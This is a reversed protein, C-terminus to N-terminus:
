QSGYVVPRILLRLAVKCYPIFKIERFGQDLMVFSFSELISNVDSIRYYTKNNNIQSIFHRTINSQNLSFTYILHYNRWPTNVLWMDRSKSFVLNSVIHIVQPLPRLAHFLEQDESLINHTLQPRNVEPTTNDIPGVSVTQNCASGLVYSLQEPFNVTISTGDTTIYREKEIHFRCKLKTDIDLLLSLFCTVFLHESRDKTKRKDILIKLNAIIERCKLGMRTLALNAAIFGEVETKMEPTIVLTGSDADRTLAGASTLWSLTDTKISQNVEEPVASFSIGYFKNYDVTKHERGEAPAMKRDSVPRFVNPSNRIHTAEQAQTMADKHLGLGMDRDPVPDIGHDAPLLEVMTDHMRNRTFMAIDLYRRIISLDSVSLAQLSGSKFIDVDLFVCLYRYLIFQTISEQLLNNTYDVIEAPQEAYFDRCPIDFLIDNVTTMEIPNFWSNCTTVEMPVVVKVTISEKKTATLPLADVTIQDLAIEAAVSRLYLLSSLDLTPSLLITFNSASSHSDEELHKENEDNTLDLVYTDTGMDLKHLSAM